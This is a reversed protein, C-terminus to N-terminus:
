RWGTTETIPLADMDARLLVAIRAEDNHQKRGRRVATVSSSGQGDPYGSRGELDELIAAQTAPLDLGFEPIQHLRRRLRRLDRTFM